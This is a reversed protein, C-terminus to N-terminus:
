STLEVAERALREVEDFRREALLRREVLWSGGCALVSQLALYASLSTSDIGGTPVFRIDPYVASM